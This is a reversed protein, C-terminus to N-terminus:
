YSPDNTATAGFDVTNLLHRPSVDSDRPIYGLACFSQNSDLYIAHSHSHTCTTYLIDTDCMKSHLACLM